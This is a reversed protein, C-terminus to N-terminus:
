REVRLPVFRRASSGGADVTLEITYDGPSLPALRLDAVLWRSGNEDRIAANVPVAMPNGARDLIRAAPSTAAPAVPAEFRAVETRWWFFSAVPNQRDASRFAIPEGIPSAGIAARTTELLPAAGAAPRLRVSIEYDGSTAGMVPVRALFSRGGPGITARGTGAATGQPGTVLIQADAGQRWETAKAAAASLEGTVHLESRAADFSAHLFFATSPAIRALRGLAETRDVTAPDRPAPTAAAAARAENMAKLDAATWARYGKRARVEVGPRTVKVRITRYGGDSKTNTSYYALLYYGSIDDVVRQLAGAVDNTRVIANGDTNASLTQLTEVHSMGLDGPRRVPSRPEDVRLGGPDVTYFSVNNRNADDILDQYTRQNDLAAAARLHRDCEDTDVNYANPNKTGLRGGPGIRVQPPNKAGISSLANSERVLPWGESVLVMHTRAERRAGISQVLERLVGFTFAERRRHILQWAIASIACQGTSPYCVTYMKEIPDLHQVDNCDRLKTGWRREQLLGNRLVDTNRGLILDRFDMQPMMLGILDSPGILSDILRVLPMPTQMSNEELVHFADLFLVFVRNRPDAALELAAATSSPNVAPASQPADVRIYEFQDIKQAVGDELLEFDAARLDTIPKGDKLVHVDVRVLNAETRFVQRKAAPEQPPATQASLVVAAVSALLALATRKM